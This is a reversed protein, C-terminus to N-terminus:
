HVRDRARAAIAAAKAPDDIQAVEEPLLWDVPEVEYVDRASDYGLILAKDGRKLQNEKSCFVNLILGAGGDEFTAHGFSGTVSGSNITCVRGMLDQRGPAKKAIFIPHLPRVALAAMLTGLVLSLLFIGGSLVVSPVISGLLDFVTNRSLLALTWSAFVVFSFSITVPIGAFGLAAFLGSGHADVDHDHGAHGAHGHADAGEFVGGAAKAGGELVGGAAKAGGELLGGAAKAGGELVGSAAKAGAALDVDGDLVDIGVAGLIVFLWYTLTVGMLITFFVTPFALISELFPTM